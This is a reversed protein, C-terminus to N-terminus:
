VSTSDSEDSAESSSSEAPALSEIGFSTITKAVHIVLPLLAESRSQPDVGNECKLGLVRMLTKLELLTYPQVMNRIYDSPKVRSVRERRRAGEAHAAIFAASKAIKKIKMGGKVVEGEVEGEAIDRVILLSFAYQNRHSRQTSTAVVSLFPVTYTTSALRQMSVIRTVSITAHSLAGSPFYLSLPRPPVFVPAVSPYRSHSPPFIPADM